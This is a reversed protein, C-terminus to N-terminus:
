PFLWDCLKSKVNKKCGYLFKYVRKYYYVTIVYNFYAVTFLGSRDVDLVGESKSVDSKMSKGQFTENPPSSLGVLTTPIPDCVTDAPALPKLMNFTDLLM